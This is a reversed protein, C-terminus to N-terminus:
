FEIKIVFKGNEGKAAIRGDHRSVIEKAISLGLGSGEVASSRAADSRYFREFVRDLPGDEIGEADNIVKIAVREKNRYLHFEATTLAYKQANELLVSLLKSIMPEDGHLRVDNQIEVDFQVSKVRFAETFGECIEKAKASLDIDSVALRPPAEDIRALANLNRVMTNLRGVQKTIAQTSESAGSEMEIIETNASIITLPTKLEHSADSIFRQQRKISTQLPKVFFKSVPILVLFSVLVGLSGGIVSSWLLRYSPTLERAYHIVSVYTQGQYQYTRYRFYTRTWGKTGGSLSKAWAVADGEAVTQNEMAMRLMTANGADDIKVTFYRTSMRTEFNLGDRGEREPPTFEGPNFGQGESTDGSPPTPSPPDDKKFEGGADALLQTVNDAENALMSFNVINIAAFILLLLTFISVTAYGVFKRRFKNIM